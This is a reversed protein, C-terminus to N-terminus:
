SFPNWGRMPRAWASCFPIEEGKIGGTLPPFLHPLLKNSPHFLVGMARYICGPRLLPPIHKWIPLNAFVATETQSTDIINSSANRFPNNLYYRLIM